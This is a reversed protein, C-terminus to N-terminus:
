IFFRICDANEASMGVLLGPWRKKLGDALVGCIRNETAYHGADFLNIGMSAADRMVSYKVDGTVLTDCGNKQAAYLLNGSAGCGCALRSVPRKADVYRIGNPSLRKKLDTLFEAVSRRKPLVGAIGTIGVAEDTIKERESIGLTEAFIDNVGGPAADLNTHMCIASIGNEILRVLCIGTVTDTTVCRLPSFIVPHHSVIVDAGTMAAEGVVQPTIDLSVLVKNADSDLSGALLGVNDWKEALQPPAIEELFNLIDIVKPM